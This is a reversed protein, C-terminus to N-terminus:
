VLAAMFARERVPASEPAHASARGLLLDAEAVAGSDLAAEGALYLGYASTGSVRADLLSAGASESPRLQAEPPPPNSACAALAASLALLSPLFLLRASM